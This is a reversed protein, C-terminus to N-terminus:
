GPDNQLGVVLLGVKGKVGGNPRWFSGTPLSLLTYVCSDWKPEEFAVGIVGRRIIGCGDDFFPSIYCLSPLRAALELCDRGSHLLSGRLCKLYASRFCPVRSHRKFGITHIQPTMERAHFQLGHGPYRISVDFTSPHPAFAGQRHASPLGDM